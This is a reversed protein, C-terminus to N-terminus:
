STLTKKKFKGVAQLFMKARHKLLKKWMMKLSIITLYISVLFQIAFGGIASYIMINEVMESTSASIDGLYFTSMGIFIGAAVEGSIVSILVSTDKFPLYYLLHGLQLMTFGINVGAQM